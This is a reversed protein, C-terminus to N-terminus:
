TQTNESKKPAECGPMRFLSQEPSPLFSTCHLRAMSPPDTATLGAKNSHTQSWCSMFTCPWAMVLEDDNAHVLEFCLHREESISAM